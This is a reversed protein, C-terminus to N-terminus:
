YFDIKFYAANILKFDCPFEKIECDTSYNELLTKKMAAADSKSYYFGVYNKGGLEFCPSCSVEGEPLFFMPDNEDIEFEVKVKTELSYLKRNKTKPKPMKLHLDACVFSIVFHPDNYNETLTYNETSAKVESERSKSVFLFSKEGIDLQAIGNESYFTAAKGTESSISLLADALYCFDYFQKELTDYTVGNADLKHSQLNEYYCLFQNISVKESVYRANLCNTAHVEFVGIFLFLSIFINKRM